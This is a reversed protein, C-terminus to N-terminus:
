LSPTSPHGFYCFLALEELIGVFRLNILIKGSAPPGTGTPPTASGGAAIPPGPPIGSKRRNEEGPLLIPQQRTLPRFINCIISLRLVVLMPHPNTQLILALKVGFFDGFFGGFM